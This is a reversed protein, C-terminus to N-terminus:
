LPWPLAPRRDGLFVFLRRWRESAWQGSKSSSFTGLAVELTCVHELIM